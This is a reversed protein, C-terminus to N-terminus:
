YYLSARHMEVLWEQVRKKYPELERDMQEVDLPSVVVQPQPMPRAKLLEIRYVTPPHTVDLRTAELHEVRRIRELEREPMEAMSRQLEDFLSLSGQGVSVSRVANTFTRSFHLKDLLALMTDTGAVRAALSDALYEARQSDHWLLHSLVYAGLWAVGSLCLSLLNGVVAGMDALAGASSGHSRFNWIRYPRLLRYWEILSTVATGTFFSRNPDGNVAHALEHAILAVREEGNLIALLPLGLTLVKRRRWGVQRFSANFRWDIVVADVTSAGLAQAVHDVAQYLTPLRDRPTVNGPAKPV